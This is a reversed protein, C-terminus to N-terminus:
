KVTVETKCYRGGIDQIYIMATGHSKATVVGSSSVAAVAPCNSIYRLAAGYSKKLHKKGHYMMYTAGIKRSAGTKLTVKNVKAKISKVNAYRGMTNGTIFYISKSSVIKKSGNYAVVYFKYTKHAKLKKGKLKKVEYSTKSTTKIKKFSKDSKQGYVVYKTAGSVKSWSLKVATSGSTAAKVLEVPVDAAPEVEPKLVVKTVAEGYRDTFYSSEINVEEFYKKAIKINDPIVPSENSLYIGCNENRNYALVPLALGSDSSISQLKILSNEFYIRKGSVANVVYDESAGETLIEATSNIIDVGREESQPEDTDILENDANKYPWEPATGGQDQNHEIYFYYLGHARNGTANIYLDSDQMLIKEAYIIGTSFGGDDETEAILDVDAGNMAKFVPVQIAAALGGKGADWPDKVAASLRGGNVTLEADFLTMARTEGGIVHDVVIDADCNNLAVRDHSSLFAAIYLTGIEGSIELDESANELNLKCNNFEVDSPAGRFAYNIDNLSVVTPSKSACCDLTLDTFNIYDGVVLLAVDEYSRSYIDLNDFNFTNEKVNGDPDYQTFVMNNGKLAADDSMGKINVVSNQAFALFVSSFADDEPTEKNAISCDGIVKIDFTGGEQEANAFLIEKCKPEVAETSLYVHDLTLTHGDDSLSIAGSGDPITYTEGASILTNNFYVEMGDEPSQAFVPLATAPILGVVMFVSIIIGFLKKKM